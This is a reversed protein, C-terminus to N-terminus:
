ERKRSGFILSRVRILDRMGVLARGFNTYKSSGTKRPRHAVGIEAFSIGKAALFSPIYRHMGEFYALHSIHSKKIAKMSGSDKAKDKLVVRRIANGIFSNVRKLFADQRNLRYTFVAEKENFLALMKPIESAVHQGDGDMIVCIKRTASLLGQWVAASQGSRQSFHLLVIDKRDALIRGTRDSSGDNVAIIEAHPLAGRVENLVAEANGEENYFPIIVSVDVGTDMSPNYCGASFVICGFRM